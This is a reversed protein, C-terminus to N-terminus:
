QLEAYAAEPGSPPFESLPFPKRDTRLETAKAPKSTPFTTRIVKGTLYNASETWDREVANDTCRMTLTDLGAVLWRESRLVFKHTVLSRACGNRSTFSLEIRDPAKFQFEEIWAGFSTERSLTFPRSRVLVGYKGPQVEGAIMVAASHPTLQVIAAVTAHTTAAPPMQAVIPETGAAAFARITALAATRPSEALSLGPVTFLLALVVARV